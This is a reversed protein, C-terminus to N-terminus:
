AAGMESVLFDDIEGLRIEEEWIDPMWFSSDPVYVTEEVRFGLADVDGYVLCDDFRFEDEGYRIVSKPSAEGGGDCEATQAAVPAMAEPKDKKSVPFNTVAKDGKLKVAALDYMSAAEEATDFTGLWLRKELVLSDRIEASFRGWPRKRVGRFKKRDTGAAASPQHPTSRRAAPKRSVSVHDEFSIEHVQRKVRRRRQLHFSCNGGADEEEESSSDTADADTFLIRVVRVGSRNPRAVVM